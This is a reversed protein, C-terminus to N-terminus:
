SASILGSVGLGLVFLGVLLAIGAGTLPWHRELNARLRRLLTLAREGAVGLVAVILLLPLVFCLNYLVLLLVQRAIDIGSDLIAAIAALYPFATPLEVATMTVGLLAPSRGSTDLQPLERAALRRRGAWLVGATALMVAGLAIEGISRAVRGPKPVSSIILQGPGLAIALGGLLYVAFVAVTFESVSRRPREGGALYLAAVITAPNLSDAVAVSLVLATLALV